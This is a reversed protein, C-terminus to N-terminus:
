KTTGALTAASLNVVGGFKTVGTVDIMLGAATADLSGSYVKVVGIDVLEAGGPNPTQSFDARGGIVALAVAGQLSASSKHEYTSGNYAAISGPYHTTSGASVVGTGLTRLVGTGSVIAQSNTKTAASLELLGSDMLINNTGTATSPVMVHCGPGVSSVTIDNNTTSDGDITISGSVAGGTINTGGMDGTLTIAGVNKTIDVNTLSGKLNYVGGSGSLTVRQKGGTDVDIVLPYGPRGVNGFFGEGVVLESLGVSSNQLGYLVDHSGSTFYVIDNNDPVGSPTFNAATQFDNPGANATPTAVTLNTSGVDPAALSFPRGAISATCTVVNSLASYTAFGFLSNSSGALAARINEAVTSTTGHSAATATQTSGDEGTFTITITDSANGAVVTITTVQSVATAGGLWQKYATTM